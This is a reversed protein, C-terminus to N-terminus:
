SVTKNAGVWNEQSEKCLFLALGLMSINLAVHPWGVQWSQAVTLGFCGCSVNLGRILASINALLFLASLGATLLAAGPLLSGGALLCLGCVLEVGPLCVAGVGLLWSPLIHYQQVAEAFVWINCIKSGGSVALMLGLLFRTASLRGIVLRERSVRSAEM